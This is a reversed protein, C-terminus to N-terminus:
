QCSTLHSRNSRHHRRHFAVVSIYKKGITISLSTSLKARLLGHSSLKVSGNLGGHRDCRELPMGLRDLPRKQSGGMCLM